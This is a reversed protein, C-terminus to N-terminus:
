FHLFPKVSAREDVVRVVRIDVRQVDSEVKHVATGVVIPLLSCQHQAVDQLASQGVIFQIAFYRVQGFLTTHLFKDAYTRLNAGVFFADRQCFPM